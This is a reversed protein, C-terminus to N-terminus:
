RWFVWYRATRYLNLAGPTLEAARNAAHQETQYTATSLRLVITPFTYEYDPRPETDGPEYASVTTDAPFQMLLDNDDPARLIDDGYDEVPLEDLEAQVPYM